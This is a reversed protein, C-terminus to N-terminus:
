VLSCNVYTRNWPSCVGVETCPIHLGSSWGAILTVSLSIKKKCDGDQWTHGLRQVCSSQFGGRRSGGDASMQWRYSRFVSSGFHLQTGSSWLWWSLNVFYSRIQPACDSSACDSSASIFVLVPWVCLMLMVYIFVCVQQWKLLFDIVKLKRGAKDAKVTLPTHYLYLQVLSFSCCIRCHIFIPWEVFCIRM